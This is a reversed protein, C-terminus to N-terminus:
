SPDSQAEEFGIWNGDPDRVIFALGGTLNNEIVPVVFSAGDEQLRAALTHVDAVQFTLKVFGLASARDRQRARADGEQEAIAQEVLEMRFDDHDLLAIRIREQPYDGRRALRFGLAEYWSISVDLDAVNIAVLYPRLDHALTRPPHIQACAAGACTLALAAVALARM